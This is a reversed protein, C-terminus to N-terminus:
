KRLEVSILEGENPHGKIDYFAIRAKMAQIQTCPYLEGTPKYNLASFQIQFYNDTFLHLEQRQSSFDMDLSNGSCKVTKIVGLAIDRPGRVAATHRSMTPSPASQDVEARHRLVPPAASSDDADASGSAPLASGSPAREAAARQAAQYKEREAMAAQYQLANGVFEEVTALETSSKAIKEAKQAVGIADKIRNQILLIHATTLWYYVNSPDLNVARLAMMHAQDLNENRQAYFHALADYAPAFRPNSQIATELSKKVQASAAADLSHSNMAMWAYYYNALFNKSNLPVAQAFWKQSAARHGQRFEILGLSVMSAVNQSDQRLADQLMAQADAYRENRALLDGRVAESEAPTMGRATFSNPDVRTAGQVRLSAFSSKQVYSALDRALDESTGFAHAAAAVSDTGHDVEALYAAVLNKKEQFGKSMLYHALAWSEAYFMSGKHEENYYPSDPGVTFLTALPLLRNERLMEIHEASPEGLWIEKSRIESNGYYEAIGEDLWLPIMPSGQHLLLHAYEHFLIHYPNQDETDLSLLVYNVDPSKLFLGARKLEGKQLWAAPSLALFDKHSKVALVVIPADPDVSLTPFTTLFAARIQEFRAGVQRGSKEGANTVVTFHPSEVKIWAAPESRAALNTAFAPCFLVICLVLWVTRRRM